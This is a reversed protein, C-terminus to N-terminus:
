LNRHDSLVQVPTSDGLLYHRWHKYLDVITLIEKNHVTYNCDTPLFIRSYFEIPRVTSIDQM